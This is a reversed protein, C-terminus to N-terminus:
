RASGGLVLVSGGLPGTSSVWVFPLPIPGPHATTSSMAGETNPM